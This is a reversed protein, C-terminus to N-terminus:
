QLVNLDNKNYSKNLKNILRSLVIETKSLINRQIAKKILDWRKRSILDWLRFIIYHNVTECKNKDSVTAWLHETFFINKFIKCIWLFDGTDSVRKQDSVTARLHETFFTNKFVKWFECSFM